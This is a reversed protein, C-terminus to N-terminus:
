RTERKAWDFALRATLAGAPMTAAGVASVGNPVPALFQVPVNVRTAFAGPMFGFVRQGVEFGTVGAGLETVIGALDWRRDAGSRGSVPRACQACGPLQPRRGGGPDAGPGREAAARGDRGSSPQRDRRTRDAGPRLRDRATGRSPRQAGVATAATGLVKRTATRTRTRRAPTGLLGALSHVADRIQRLRGAPLAPGTARHHRHTRIGVAGGAGPRGARRIRDGRGTRHRDVTRRHLKLTKSRRCRRCSPSCSTSRARWGRPSNPPRSKKAPNGQAAGSSAPSRRVASRPRRSCGSGPSRIRLQTRDFSISGPLDAALEDFGAILWTGDGNEAADAGGGAAADGALRHHVPEPHCRRRARAVVGRPARAEGRVRSNRGSPSRGSRRFRPRIGANRQRASGTQWRARCYFRRPMRERLVVRGYRLPLFLDATPGGEETAALVAPFAPFAVGTCLDLLVPHIPESGLQEALEDGIAVDGVAEGDGTWLSKLSTSWTPGWALEMDAFTDFLQQPRTRSLRECAADISEDPSRRRSTTSVPSSRHRRREVVM